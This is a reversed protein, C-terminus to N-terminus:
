IGQDVPGAITSDVKQFVSCRELGKNTPRGVATLVHSDLGHSLRQEDREVLTEGHEVMLQRPVDRERGGRARLTDSDQLLNLRVEEREHTFM